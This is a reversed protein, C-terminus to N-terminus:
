LGNEAFEPLRAKKIPERCKWVYTAHIHRRRLLILIPFLSQGAVPIGAADADDAPIQVRAERYQNGPLVMGQGQDALLPFLGSIDGENGAVILDPRIFLNGRWELMSFGWPLANHNRKWRLHEQSAFHGLRICM